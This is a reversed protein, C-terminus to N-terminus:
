KLKKEFLEVKDQPLTSNTSIPMEDLVAFAMIAVVGVLWGTAVLLWIKLSPPKRPKPMNAKAELRRKKKLERARASKM